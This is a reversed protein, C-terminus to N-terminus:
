ASYRWKYGHASQKRGKCVQGINQAHIGTQRFAEAVSPFTKIYNGDMDLMDVPISNSNNLQAERQHSKWVPDQGQRRVRDILKAYEEPDQYRRKAAESVKKNHDGYNNNYKATCWELNNAKDNKPNCDKHNVQPLNDPNPIFAIAVLRAVRYYRMKGDKSLAVSNYERARKYKLIRGDRYQKSGHTARVVTPLRKVRGLNSVQYFGEYGAIDKWIEIENEM